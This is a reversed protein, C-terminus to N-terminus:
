YDENRIQDVIENSLKHISSGNLREMNCKRSCLIQNEKNGLFPTNCISCVCSYKRNRRYHEKMYKKNYAKKAATIPKRCQCYKCYGLSRGKKDKYFDSDRSKFTKCRCCYKEKPNTSKPPVTKKRPPYIEGCGKCKPCTIKLEM